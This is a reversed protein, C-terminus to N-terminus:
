RPKGRARPFNKWRCQRRRCFYRTRELNSKDWKIVVVSGLYFKKRDKSVEFFGNNPTHLTSFTRAGFTVNIDTINGNLMSWNAFSACWATEDSTAYWKTAKQYKMVDTNHVTKSTNERVGKAMEQRAKVLWM